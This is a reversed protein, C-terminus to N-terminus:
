GIDQEIDSCKKYEDVKLLIKAQKMLQEKGETNLSNFILILEKEDSNQVSILEIMDDEIFVAPSVKLVKALLSIKDRKMNSIFGSEWKKVTSKGVGVAKGVEELTLGLEKRRNLIIEGINLNVGGEKSSIIDCFNGFFM